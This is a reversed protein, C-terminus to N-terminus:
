KDRKPPRAGQVESALQDFCILCAYGLRFSTVPAIRKPPAGVARGVFGTCLCPEVFDAITKASPRAGLNTV